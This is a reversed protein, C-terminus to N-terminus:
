SSISEIDVEDPLKAVGDPTHISSNMCFFDTLTKPRPPDTLTLRKILISEIDVNGPINAQLVDDPIDRSSDTCFLDTVTRQRPPDTITSSVM